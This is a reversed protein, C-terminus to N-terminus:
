HKFSLCILSSVVHNVALLCSIYQFPKEMKSIYFLYIQMNEQIILYWHDLSFNELAYLIGSLFSLIGKKHLYSTCKRFGWILFFNGEYQGLSVYNIICYYPKLSHFLELSITLTCVQLYKFKPMSFKIYSDECNGKKKCLQWLIIDWLVKVNNGQAEERRKKGYCNMLRKIM